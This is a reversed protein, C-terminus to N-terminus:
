KWIQTLDIGTYFFKLIEQYTMGQNAMCLAGSASMGVGHGWLTKGKDCPVVVGKVWPVDGAWVESWDRTHGDSRSFYPTIATAGQYTVM